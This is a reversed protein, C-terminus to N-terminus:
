QDRRLGRLCGDSHPAPCSHNQWHPAHGRAPSFVLSSLIKANNNISSRVHSPPHPPPPPPHPPRRRRIM